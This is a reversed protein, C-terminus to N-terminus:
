RTGKGALDPRKIRRRVLTACQKAAADSVAYSAAYTAADAAYAAHAAHAANAAYAAANSSSAAADAAKRVDDLTAEGACWKRATEIAIRPRNEGAPVYRLSLEACDCAALVIQKRDVALRAALWLLWDGRHCIRWAQAYSPQERAWKVAGGCADLETLQDSWHTM